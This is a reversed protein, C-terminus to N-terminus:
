LIECKDTRGHKIFLFTLILINEQPHKIKDASFYNIFNNYRFNSHKSIFLIKQLLLIINIAETETNILIITDNGYM